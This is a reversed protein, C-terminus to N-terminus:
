DKGWPARNRKALSLYKSFLIQASPTSLAVLTDDGRPGRLLFGLFTDIYLTLLCRIKIHQLKSQLATGLFIEHCDTLFLFKIRKAKRAVGGGGLYTYDEFSCHCAELKLSCLPPAEHVWGKERGPM